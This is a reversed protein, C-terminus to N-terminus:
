PSCKYPKGTMKVARPAVNENFRDISAIRSEETEVCTDGRRRRMRGDSTREEVWDGTVAAANAIRDELTLRRTNSRPDNLAASRSSASAAYGPPLTLRLTTRPPEATAGDAPPAPAAPAPSTAVAPTESSFAPPAPLPLDPMPLRPTAAAPPTPPPTRRPPVLRVTTLRREGAEQMPPPRHLWLLALLGLHLAAVAFRAIWRHDM